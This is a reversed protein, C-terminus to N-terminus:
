IMFSSKEQNYELFSVKLNYKNFLSTAHNSNIGDKYIDYAETTTIATNIYRVRTIFAEHFNSESTLGNLYLRNDDTNTSKVFLTDPLIFSNHLKGDLYVDFVNNDITLSLNVWKQLPVNKLVFRSIVVGNNNSDSTRVFIHIDNRQNNLCVHLTPFNCESKKLSYNYHDPTRPPCGSIQSGPTPAQILEAPPSSGTPIYECIPNNDTFVKTLSTESFNNDFIHNIYYLGAKDKDTDSTSENYYTMFNKKTIGTDFDNIFYWMSFSMNASTEKKLNRIEKQDISCDLINDYLIDTKFFINVIGVIIIIILIIIIIIKWLDM